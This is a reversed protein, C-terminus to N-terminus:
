GSVAFGGLDNIHHASLIKRDRNAKLADARKRDEPDERRLWGEHRVDIDAIGSSGFKAEAEKIAQSKNLAREVAAEFGHVVDEGLDFLSELPDQSKTRKEEGVKGNTSM